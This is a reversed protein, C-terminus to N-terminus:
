LRGRSKWFDYEFAWEDKHLTVLAKMRDFFARREPQQEPFIAQRRIGEALRAGLGAAKEVLSERTAPDALQWGGAGVSGVTWVGLHRLFRLLYAEVEASEPGGSTVVAAGYKGEFAVLHLAGCSRDMFAKMQATVSFVYNPSALVLGDAGEIARRVREYDDDVRCKGSRHCCDCARCPRVDMDSLLFTKVEAGGAAAADLVPKLLQGTNGDMGRPSGMVAVIKM